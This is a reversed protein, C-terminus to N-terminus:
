VKVGLDILATELVNESVLDDEGVSHLLVNLSFEDERDLLDDHRLFAEHHDPLLKVGLDFAHDLLLDLLM